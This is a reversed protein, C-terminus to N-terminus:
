VSSSVLLLYRVKVTLFTLAHSRSSGNNMATTGMSRQLTGKELLALGKELSDVHEEVLGIVSAGAFTITSCHFIM